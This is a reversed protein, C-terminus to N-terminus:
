HVIADNTSSRYVNSPKLHYKNEAVNPQVKYAYPLCTILVIDDTLNDFM